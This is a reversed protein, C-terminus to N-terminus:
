GQMSHIKILFLWKKGWDVTDQLDSELEFDLELQQWQDSVQDCKFYLTTNHLAVAQTAM